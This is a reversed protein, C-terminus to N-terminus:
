IIPVDMGIEERRGWPILAGPNSVQHPQNFKCASGLYTSLSSCIYGMHANHSPNCLAGNKCPWTHSVVGSNNSVAEGLINESSTGLERCAFIWAGCPKSNKQTGMVWVYQSHSNSPWHAKLMSMHYESPASLHAATYTHIYLSLLYPHIKIHWPVDM